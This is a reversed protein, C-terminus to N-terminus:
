SPRAAIPPSIPAARPAATKSNSPATAKGSALVALGSASVQVARSTARSRTAVRAAIPVAAMIARSGAPRDSTILRVSQALGVVVGPETEREVLAFALTLTPPPGHRRGIARSLGSADAM